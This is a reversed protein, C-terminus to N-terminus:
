RQQEVYIGVQVASRSIWYAGHCVAVIGDLGLQSGEALRLIANDGDGLPDHEVPISTDIKNRDLIRWELRMGPTVGVASGGEPEVSQLFAAGRFAQVQDIEGIFDDLM